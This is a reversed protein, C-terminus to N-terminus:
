QQWVFYSAYACLAWCALLGQAVARIPRLGTLADFGAAALLALCPVLGLAYTSKATSLIPVSLFLYFIASLYICLCAASFLLMRRLPEKGGGIAVVCGAIIAASPLLSLWAGSLMFSFNWPTDYHASLFGDMWLTSYISDWFGYISSYLPYFLSEGFAYLQGPTRYGPDQWWVIDRSSDWGGVFFRGLEARNRLYYWGAVAFLTGTMTVAFRGAAKVGNGRDGQERVMAACVTFLAPLVALLPTVKTLLALGFVLGMLIAGRPLPPMDGSLLRCLFLVVLGTLLGALPENGLSQSMYLNMPLLGGVLTGVVRRRESRPYAFRLTRYTIEVQAMGCLFPLLKLIRIVTEPDFFPLSARYLIAALFHFLPPQFMQWGETALPIRWTDAIAQIYQMHGDYDMGVALPIKRFNNVAMLLWGGLLLWRVANPSIRLRDLWSPSPPNDPRLSLFFFLAFVSLLLPSLALLALDSRPLSRSVPLFSIRDAPLAPLWERGDGSAEWSSGSFIGLSGCHALLAPHGNRHVVDIRLERGGKSLWPRLDIDHSERWREPGGPSRFVLRGDIMLDAEKMAKLTLVASDPIERVEFRCRFSTKSTEAARIPLQFEAPFRIWKAGGSDVLLSIRSDSMLHLIVGVLALIAVAAVIPRFPRHFRKKVKEM